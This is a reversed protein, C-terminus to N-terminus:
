QVASKSELVLPDHHVNLTTSKGKNVHISNYPKCKDYGHENDVKRLWRSQVARPRKIVNRTHYM